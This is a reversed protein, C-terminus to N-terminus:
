STSGAEAGLATLEAELAEWETMWGDIKAALEADERELRQVEGARGADLTAEFFSPAAYLEAIARRRAEAQEIAALVKDRRAPLANRLNRRRKQEEWSLTPEARPAEAGSARRPPSSERAAGKAKLVVADADLHDDGCRELYEDYTGPFDRPGDPTLEFIRTAVQSVFWRDHSVFLLTGEYARLAEVLAAIAELDLHNTPEDLVLLNPREVAIRGFVLRAAEGGSLSGIPKKADDGSFLVRGLQGRVYSTAEAPCAEWMFDLPTMSANRLVDHHDQAFYGARVEHGFRVKGADAELERMIIKLLTSKGLGNPGIM